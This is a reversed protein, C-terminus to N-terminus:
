DWESLINSIKKPSVTVEQSHKKTDAKVQNDEPNRKQKKKAKKLITHVIKLIMKTKVIKKSSISSTTKDSNIGIYISEM